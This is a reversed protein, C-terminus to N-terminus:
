HPLHKLMQRLNFQGISLMDWLESYFKRLAFVFYETDGNERKIDYQIAVSDVLNDVWAYELTHGFEKDFLDRRILGNKTKIRSYDNIRNLYNIIENRWHNYDRSSAKMWTKLFHMSLQTLQEEIKQLARSQPFAMEYIFESFKM